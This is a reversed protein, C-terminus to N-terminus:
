GWNAISSIDPKGSSIAFVSRFTLGYYVPHWKGTHRMYSLNYRDPAVYELRAFKDDFYPTIANPGPCNYRTCFNFYNRYWKLSIDALYNFREDKPPPKFYTPKLFTEILANAKNEVDVKTAEPVKISPSNQPNYVWRKQNKAM